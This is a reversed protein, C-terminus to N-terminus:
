RDGAPPGPGPSQEEENTYREDHRMGRILCFGGVMLLPVLYVFNVLDYGLVAFAIISAAMGLLMYPMQLYLLACCLLLAAVFPVFGWLGFYYPGVMYMGVWVCGFILLVLLCGISNAHRGRGLPPTGLFRDIKLLIKM